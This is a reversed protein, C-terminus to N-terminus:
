DTAKEIQELIGAAVREALFRSGELTFHVNDPKTQFEKMRLWIRAHLNNIAIGNEQMVQQAVANYRAADGQIRGAEGEPVPTTAAWILRSNTEKM